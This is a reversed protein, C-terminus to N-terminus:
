KSEYKWSKAVLEVLGIILVVAAVIWLIVKGRLPISLPVAVLWVALAGGGCLNIAIAGGLGLGRISKRLGYLELLLAVGIGFIVAGLISAYFHTNTPPLGLLDLLGAPFLLLIVGLLLNVVGDIFLLVKHKFNM